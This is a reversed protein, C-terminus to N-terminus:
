AKPKRSRGKPTATEVEPPAVAKETEVALGLNALEADVQAVRDHRGRAVYGAREIILAEAYTDAM